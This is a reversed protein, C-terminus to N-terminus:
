NPSRWFRVRSTPPELGRQEVLSKWPNCPYLPTGLPFHTRTRRTAGSPATEEPPIIDRDFVTAKHRRPLGNM